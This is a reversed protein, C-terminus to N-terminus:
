CFSPAKPSSDASPNFRGSIVVIKCDLWGECVRRALELGDMSGPMDIDTVLAANVIYNGRGCDRAEDSQLRDLVLTTEM